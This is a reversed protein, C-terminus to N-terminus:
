EEEEPDKVYKAPEVLKYGFEDLLAKKGHDPLIGNYFKHKKLRWAVANGENKHTSFIEELCEDMTKAESQEKKYKESM